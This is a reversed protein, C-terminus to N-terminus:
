GAAASVFGTVLDAYAEAQELQVFHGAQEFVQVQGRPVLASFADRHEPPTVLDAAGTMLLAPMVLGRLLPVLSEFMGPDRMLRGAAAESHDPDPRGLEAAAMQEQWKPDSLYWYVDRAGLGALLDTRYGGAFMDAEECRRRCERALGPEGIGEYLGALAPLRYRETAEVDWAPNEFLVSTVRDPHRAAYRLAIRGGFSHGLVAWREIGLAERLAECDDALVNETLPEGDSAPPSRLVGRQDFTVLQLERSLLGAQWCAFEHSGMGPGGHLYLLAPRGPQGFTQTFLVTGAASVLQGDPGPHTVM